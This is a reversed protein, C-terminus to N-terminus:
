CITTRKSSSTTSIIKVCSSGGRGGYSYGGIGRGSGSSSSGGGVSLRGGGGGWSIGSGGGSSSSVVSINVASACEGSMRCEEGELLTKYTAIEIDLALKVNLLEQYDRLLRATEEKAKQLAMELEVLKERADKLTLEGCGETEAVASQLKACQKKVNELEAQLRHILRTLESIELKSNKLDNDHKGATVQLEQFKGQYMSNAEARSRNAMDEYHAKVEAIIGDLDLARNNDMSLIVSTDSIQRQMQALETEYLARLFNIEDTMAAVKAEMEVKKMYAADLDQFIAMSIMRELHIRGLAKKVYKHKLDEVLDQMNKLESDQRGREGVLSDLHKRLSGVYAEFAPELNNGANSTPQQQLLNWKTELVKNQQELFRVKDIFSAFKNNLTKIQEREQVRVKQIEPDIELNLPVLLNQNITVEQIGGPPCISFGPSSRGGGVGGSFLGGGGFGGAGGSTGFGGGFGGGLRWGGGILSNSVSKIGGLNYLSRSGFVCHRSRGRSLSTCSSRGGSSVIASISGFGRSCGGARANLQRSM